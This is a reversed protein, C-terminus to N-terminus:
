RRTRWVWIVSASAFISVALVDMMRVLSWRGEEGVPVAVHSPLHGLVASGHTGVWAFAPMTSTPAVSPVDVSLHVAGPHGDTPMAPLWIPCTNSRNAPQLARYRFGYRASEPRLTMSRTRGIARLEGIQQADHVEGLEVQSGDFSEIRHEVNSAGTVVLDMAVDCSTSSLITIRVDASRLTPAASVTAALGAAALTGAVASRLRALATV